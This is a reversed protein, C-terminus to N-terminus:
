EVIPCFRKHADTPQNASQAYVRSADFVLLTLSVFALIASLWLPKLGFARQSRLRQRVM